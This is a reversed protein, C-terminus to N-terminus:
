PTPVPLHAPDQWTKIWDVQMTQPLNKKEDRDPLKPLEYDSSLLSLIPYEPVSSVGKTIRGVEQGDIRFIYGSTSWEVSFVHYRKFWDDKENMLYQEPNKIFGTSSIKHKTGGISPAYVFSTLGGNPLDKGFWEIIDIETGKGVTDATNTPQMWLSAHQGQLPNFKIRAAVVGYTISHTLQTGINANLRYKFKGYIADKGPKKPKCLSTRSKDVLVSLKATGGGVKVAKPSGKACTRKSDPYYDQQRHQWHTTNLKSGGFDDVFDATTGWESTSVAASAAGPGDIRYTVPSAPKGPPVAFLAFGKKDIETKDKTVWSSGSKRQLKVKKGAKGAGYKGIVAWKAAGSKQLDSSPAIVGPVISVPVAAQQRASVHATAEQNTSVPRARDAPASQASQVTALVGASALVLSASVAIKNRISLM